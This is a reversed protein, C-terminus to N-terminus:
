KRSSFGTSLNRRRKRAYSVTTSIAERGLWPFEDSHDITMSKGPLPAKITM